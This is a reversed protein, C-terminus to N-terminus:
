SIGLHDHPSLQCREKADCERCTYQRDFRM